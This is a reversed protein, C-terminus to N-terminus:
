AGDSFVCRSGDFYLEGQLYSPKGSKSFKNKPTSIGRLAAADPNLLSGLMFIIDTAGQIGTKSDKLASYPPYLMNEGEISIQVTSVAIFDHRVAMERVAQWKQEVEDAKNAGQVARGVSFNALMDFYVVAPRTAEVYTEIQALSAGHMDKVKVVDEGGMAENYAAELTGEHHMQIIEELTKGLAAQYLRPKIRKATGENNLWAIGRGKGFYEPLQPAFDAAVAALWSTKGRDPRAGIALSAGGSLGALGDNLLRWRRFKVGADNELETLIDGIPTDCYADVCDNALQRVAHQSLHSLEAALNVEGGSNYQQILAGAKGALDLEHLQGLVGKIAAEDVPKRLQEVLHLTLAVSEPASQASRMRILTVLEDHNIAEREPFSNFYAAYWALMVQTDQSVMGLPVASALLSFRKRTGLAHLILLDPSAM